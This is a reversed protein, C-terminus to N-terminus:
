SNGRRSDFKQSRASGHLFRFNTLSANCPRGTRYRYNITGITASLNTRPRRVASILEYKPLLRKATKWLSEPMRYKDCFSKGDLINRGTIPHNSDTARKGSSIKGPLRVIPNESPPKDTIMMLAKASGPNQYKWFFLHVM